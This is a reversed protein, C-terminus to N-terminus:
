RREMLFWNVDDAPFTVDRHYQFGYASLRLGPYTDLMEGAFDRKFLKERNGRYPVEVPTPNYYEILCIYKRSAAYMTRYVDPLKEPHIHILLGSALVLDAPAEPQFQFVSGEHTQIWDMRRLETVAKRNIEVAALKAAPLLRHLAELNLGINAGLEIVSSVGDSSSLIKSLVALKTALQRSDRNREIYADGFDGAWFAEQDTEYRGHQM